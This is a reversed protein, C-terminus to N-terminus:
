CHRGLPSEAEPIRWLALSVSSQKRFLTIGHTNRQQISSVPSFGMPIPSILFAATGAYQPRVPYFFGGDIEVNANTFDILAGSNETKYGLVWLNCGTCILHEFMVRYNGATETSTTEDAHTGLWTATVVSGSISTVKAVTNNLWTDPSLRALIILNGVAMGPDISLNLTLTNTASVYAISTVGTPVGISENDLARAYINENSCFTTANQTEVDEFFATSNPSCTFSIGGDQVM